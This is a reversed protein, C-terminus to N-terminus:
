RIIRDARYLVEPAITLGLAKAVKLRYGLELRSDRLGVVTPTPGWSATLVGIKIPYTHEEAGVSGTFLGSSMLLAVLVMPWWQTYSPALSIKRMKRQADIGM